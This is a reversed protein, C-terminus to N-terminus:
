YDVHRDDLDYFKLSIEEFSQNSDAFMLAAEKYNKEKFLYDGYASAVVSKDTGCLMLAEEFMEKQLYIKYINEEENTIIIEYLNQNTSFWFTDKVSDKFIGIVYEDPDLSYTLTYIIDNDLINMVRICNSMLILYHYKTLQLDIATTTYKPFPIIRIEDLFVNIDTSVFGQYLGKALLWVIQNSHVMLVGPGTDMPVIQSDLAFLEMNARLEYKYLAATTGVFVLRGFSVMGQISGQSSDFLLKKEKKKNLDYLVLHNKTSYILTQDILVCFDMGVVKRYKAGRFSFSDKEVLLLENGLQFYNVAPLHNVHNQILDVVMLEGDLQVCLTNNNVTAKQISSPFNYQIKDLLFKDM